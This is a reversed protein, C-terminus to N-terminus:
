GNPSGLANIDSANLATQLQSASQISQVIDRFANLQEKLFQIEDAKLRLQHEYKECVEKIEADKNKDVEREWVTWTEAESKLFDIQSQLDSETKEHRRKLKEVKDVHRSEQHRKSEIAVLMNKLWNLM